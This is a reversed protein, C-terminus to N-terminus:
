YPIIPTSVEQKINVYKELSTFFYRKPINRSKKKVLVTVSPTEEELEPLWGFIEPHNKAFDRFEKESM